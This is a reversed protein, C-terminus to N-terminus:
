VVLSSNNVSVVNKHWYSNDGRNEKEYIFSLGCYGFAFAHDFNIKEYKSTKIKKLIRPM